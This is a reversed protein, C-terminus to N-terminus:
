APRIRLGGSPRRLELFPASESRVKPVAVRRLMSRVKLNERHYTSLKKNQLSVLQLYQAIQRQQEQITGNLDALAQDGNGNASAGNEGTEQTQQLSHLCSEIAEDLDSLEQDTTKVLASMRSATSEDVELGSEEPSAEPLGAKIQNLNRQFVILTGILTMVIFMSTGVVFSVLLAEPKQPYWAPLRSDTGRLVPSSAQASTQPLSLQQEAPIRAPQPPAEAQASLTDGLCLLFLLTVCGGLALRSLLNARYSGAKLSNTTFPM